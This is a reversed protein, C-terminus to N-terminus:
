FVHPEQLCLAEEEESEGLTTQQGLVLCKAPLGYSGLHWVARLVPGWSSELCSVRLGGVARFVGTCGQSRGGLCVGGRGLGVDRPNSRFEMVLPSKGCGLTESFVVLEM